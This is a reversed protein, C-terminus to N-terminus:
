NFGKLAVVEKVSQRDGNVSIRRPAEIMTITFGCNSYLDIIRDTALNSIIVKGPHNSLWKALRCQDQWTFDKQSYKSFSADYPPDAYVFDNSRLELTEFDGSTIQWPQLIAQYESFDDLYNIKKYDGFPSNFGGSNNFRCLGRFGTRNLYYFIQAAESSQSEGLNTLDCFKSRMGYYFDRNNEMELTRVLGRQLHKYLNVLHHNADNLLAQTPHLGFAISMGGVFPEVLRSDPSSEWLKSLHPVLWRKGGVWKLLPKYSSKIM